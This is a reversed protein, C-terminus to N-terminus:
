SITSKDHHNIVQQMIKLKSRNTELKEMVGDSQVTVEM